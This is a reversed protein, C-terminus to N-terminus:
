RGSPKAYKLINNVSDNENKPETAIQSRKYEEIESMYKEQSTTLPMPQTEFKAIDAAAVPIPQWNEFRCDRQNGNKAKRALGKGEQVCFDLLRALDGALELRDEAKTLVNVIVPLRVERSGGDVPHRRRLVPAFDEPRKINRPHFNKLIMLSPVLFADVLSLMLKREHTQWDEYEIAMFMVDVNQSPSFTTM